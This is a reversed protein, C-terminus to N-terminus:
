EDLMLKKQSKLKKLQEKQVEEISKTPTPQNEPLVGGVREITKRVEQGVQNHAITANHTGQIQEKKIKEEALSIRFLNAILEKSNM